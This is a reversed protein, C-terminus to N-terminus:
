MMRYGHKFLDTLHKLRDVLVTPDGPFIYDTNEADKAKKMGSKAAFTTSPHTLADLFEDDVEAGNSEDHEGDPDDGHDRVGGTEDSNKSGAATYKSTRRRNDRRRASRPTTTAQAHTTTPAPHPLPRHVPLTAGRAAPLPQLTTRSHMRTHAHRHCGSVACLSVDHHPSEDEQQGGHETSTLSECECKKSMITKELLTWEQDSVFKRFVLAMTGCSEKQSFGPTVWGPSQIRNAKTPLSCDLREAVATGLFNEFTVPKRSSRNRSFHISYQEDHTCTSLIELIEKEQNAWLTNSEYHVVPGSALLLDEGFPTTGRWHYVQSSM